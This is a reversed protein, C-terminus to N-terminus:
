GSLSYAVIKCHVSGAGSFLTLKIKKVQGVCVM